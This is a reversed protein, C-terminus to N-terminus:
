FMYVKDPTVCMDLPVDMNNIDAIAAVPGFLSLGIKLCQPAVAFFRDYYGKGYGVRHGNADFCLLPVIATDINEPHTKRKVLPEELGWQVLELQDTENLEVCEMVPMDRALAPVSVMKKQMWLWRVVPWTDIERKNRLPLYTHVNNGKRLAPLELLRDVVLKELRTFEEAPLAHRRERYIRRLEKKTM